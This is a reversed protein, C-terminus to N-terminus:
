GNGQAALGGGPIEHLRKEWAEHETKGWHSVIVAYGDPDTFQIEGSPMYPPKRIEPVKVGNALLQERLSPLDPTYMCLLMGPAANHVPQEARLFMLAGGECHIRAWGIPSCRDTDILTFGLLAYFRISREVENVHLMPTSYGAKATM